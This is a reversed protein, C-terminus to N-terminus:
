DAVGYNLKGAAFTEFYQNAHRVARELLGRAEGSVLRHSSSPPTYMQWDLRLRVDGPREPSVDLFHHCRSEWDKDEPGFSTTFAGAFAVPQAGWPAGLYKLFKGVGPPLADASLRSDAVVGIRTVDIPPVRLHECIAATYEVATAVLESFPRVKQSAVQPLAAPVDILKTEYKFSTNIANGLLDIHFGDGVKVNLLAAQAPITFLIEPFKTKWKELVPKIADGMEHPFQLRPECALGIIPAALAVDLWNTASVM